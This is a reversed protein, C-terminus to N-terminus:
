PKGEDKYHFTLLYSCKILAILNLFASTQCNLKKYTSNVSEIANVM